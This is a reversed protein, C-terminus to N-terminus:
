LTDPCRILYIFRYNLLQVDDNCNVKKFVGYLSPSFTHLQGSPVRNTISDFDTGSFVKKLYFNKIYLDM